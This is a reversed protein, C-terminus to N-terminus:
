TSSFTAISSVFPKLVSPEQTAKECCCASTRNPLLNTTGSVFQMSMPRMFM